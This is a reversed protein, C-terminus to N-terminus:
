VVPAYEKVVQFQLVWWCLCALDCGFLERWSNVRVKLLEVILEYMKGDPQDLV